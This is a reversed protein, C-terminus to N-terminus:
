SAVGVQPMDVGSLRVISNWAAGQQREDHFHAQPQVEMPGVMKGSPSAYFKGSAEAGFEGADVYRKAGAAVPGAMKFLPGIVKMIGIMLLMMGSM